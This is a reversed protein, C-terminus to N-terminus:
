TSAHQQSRCTPIQCDAPYHPVQSVGQAFRKHVAKGAEQVALRRPRVSSWSAASASDANGCSLCINMAAPKRLKESWM